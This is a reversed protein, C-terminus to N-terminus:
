GLKVLKWRDDVNSGEKKKVEGIKAREDIWGAVLKDIDYKLGDELDPDVPCLTLSRCLWESTSSSVSLNLEMYASRIITWTTSRTKSRISSLLTVFADLELTECDVQSKPKKSTPTLSASGIIKAITEEITLNELRAYNRTRLCRSLEAIWRYEKSNRPLFKPPLSNIQEFYRSQSPYSAILNYLLSLLSIKQVSGRIPTSDLDPFKLYLDPLLHSLISTTQKSSDFIVSLYLSTEYVELAFDDARKTSLIGERLKRFLILLNEQIAEKQKGDDKTSAHSFRPYDERYKDLKEQIFERYEQQVKFDRLADGDKDVGSSRSVSAILEMHRKGPQYIKHPRARASRSM